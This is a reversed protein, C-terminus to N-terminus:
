PGRANMPPPGYRDALRGSYRSVTFMIITTPLMTSGARVASWGAVQQLFVALFFGFVSLGAYMALTEANGVAFNRRRFLGLPLMADAARTEHWLFLWLM